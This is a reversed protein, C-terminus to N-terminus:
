LAQALEYSKQFAEEKPLRMINKLPECGRHCYNAIYIQGIDVM